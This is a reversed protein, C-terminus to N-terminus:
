GNPNLKTIFGNNDAIEAEGNVSSIFYSKEIPDNIFSYPSQLETVTIQASLPGAIVFPMAWVLWAAPHNMVRTLLSIVSPTKSVVHHSNIATSAPM